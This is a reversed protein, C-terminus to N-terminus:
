ESRLSNVPNMLATKIAQYSVMALTLVVAGIGTSIFVWWSIETRYSFKDLWNSLLYYALPSAAVCSILVLWVFDKSLMQWVNAASAGMVKRIGIEKTRQEAVFSALGLLGLCSIFIAIVAFITAVKGIREEKGFKLAYEEDAFRYEFPVTPIVKKFVAEIKPLADALSIQPNVRINIWNPDGNFGKLYFITPEVPSYPSDMVMDKVVGIITYHMVRGDRWWKWTVPEGIPHKLGMFALASETVIVAASDSARAIDFDRGQVIKWNATKGHLHSVALTAFSEDIDPNRGKWDWGDNGSVIETMPGMSESVELVAGTNKLEHRLADYKGYFDASKKQIMILGERDYGVPRDKVFQLQQYVVVTGIILIISISFQFIVLVKRPVAHLRGARFVGKLVSVPNFSSLFLAPWSGALLGTITVFSIAAVWFWGNTWPMVITKTAIYNFSPLFLNTLVLAMVFAFFVVILSESFFQHILQSRVSGITKRIGVEKARKESRATTLNVFNICALLLIFVGVIGVLKLLFMPGYQGARLSTPYLHWRSMPYLSLQQDTKKAREADEPAFQLAKKIQTTTAAFASSEPLEVYIKIFHNRWDTLAREEIWKNDALFLEWPMFFQLGYLKTNDPFDEYVGGIRVDRKNITIVKNVPDEYGFFAKAVSASILVYQQKGLTAQSGSVMKFSFIEPFASDVYLGRASLNKEGSSLINDVDWSSRAVRKFHRGYNNMLETGLPYTMVTGTWRGGREPDLGTESVLAIREYNDFYKDHSFEHWILLGNLMAAAMGIALGSINIIAYGKHRLLNRWGVKLYSKYMGYTNLNKYGEAPKVIGSRFLLLVDIVFRLDAIRKGLRRERDGYVELLDGEIHHHLKPHCYWRFLNLFLKPPM